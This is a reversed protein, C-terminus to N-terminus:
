WGVESALAQIYFGSVGLELTGWGVESAADNSWLM